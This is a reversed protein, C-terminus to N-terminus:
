FRIAVIEGDVPGGGPLKRYAIAVVWGRAACPLAKGRFPRNILRPSRDPNERLVLRQFSSHVVVKRDSDSCDIWAIRGHVLWTGSPPWRRSISPRRSGLRPATWPSLESPAPVDVRSVPVAAALAPPPLAAFAQDQRRRIELVEREVRREWGPFRALQRLEDFAGAWDGQLMRAHTLALQHTPEWPMTDRARRAFRVADAARKAPDTGPRMRLLAYRYATRARTDGLALALGYHREALDQKGRMLQVAAYASQIRAARPFERVLLSLQSEASGVYQLNRHVEAEFLPIEWKAAPVADPVVDAPVRVGLEGHANQQLQAAYRQLTEDLGASGLESLSRYAAEPELKAIRGTGGRSGTSLFGPNHKSSSPGPRSPRRGRGGASRAMGAVAVARADPAPRHESTRRVAIADLAGSVRGPGGPVLAALGPRRTPARIRPGLYGLPRPACAMGGHGLQSRTRSHQGRSSGLAPGERLLAHLQLMNPLLLIDLPGDARRAVGLGERLFQARITELVGAASAVAEADLGPYERALVRFHPSEAVWDSQAALAPLLALICGLKLLAAGRPPPRRGSLTM